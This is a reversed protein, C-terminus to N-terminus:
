QENREMHEVKELTLEKYKEALRMETEGDRLSWSIEEYVRTVDAKV